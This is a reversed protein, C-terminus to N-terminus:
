RCDTEAEHVSNGIGEVYFQVTCHDIYGWLARGIELRTIDDVAVNGAPSGAALIADGWPGCGTPDIRTSGDCEIMVASDRSAPTVTGSNYSLLLLVPVALVPWWARLRGRVTMLAM